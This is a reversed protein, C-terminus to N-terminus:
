YKKIVDLIKTVEDNDLNVDSIIKNLESIETPKFDIIKIIHIEKLKLIGLEELEKKM